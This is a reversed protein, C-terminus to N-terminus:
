AFMCQMTKHMPIHITRILWFESVPSSLRHNGIYSPTSSVKRITPSEVLASKSPRVIFKFVSSEFDFSNTSSTNLEVYKTYIHYMYLIELYTIHCMLPLTGLEHQIEHCKGLGEELARCTSSRCPGTSRVELRTGIHVRPAAGGHRCLLAKLYGGPHHPTHTKKPKWPIERHNSFQNETKTQCRQLFKIPHTSKPLKPHNYLQFGDAKLLTKYDGSLKEKFLNSFSM